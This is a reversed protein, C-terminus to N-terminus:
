SSALFSPRLSTRLVRIKMYKESLHPRVSTTRMRKTAFHHGDVFESFLIPIDDDQNMGGCHHPVVKLVDNREQPVSEM